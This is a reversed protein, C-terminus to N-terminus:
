KAPKLCRASPPRRVVQYLITKEQLTMADRPHFVEVSLRHDSVHNMGGKTEFKSDSQSKSPEFKYNM